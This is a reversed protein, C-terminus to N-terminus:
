IFKLLTKELIDIVKYLEEDNIIFPLFLTIGTVYKPSYCYGAILGKKALREVLDLLKSLSLLEHTARNEMLDIAIMLGRGRIDFVLPHDGLKSRLENILLEGKVRTSELLNDRKIQNITALASACSAPNGNQTSLHFLLENKETFANLIKKNFAVAGLPLYGSNIGKSMCVMDPKIGYHEYAFMRGTRGFGTAVEDCILLVDNEKCLKELLSVYGAPLPIIGASGLIPEIIFGALEDKLLEFKGVLESEFRDNCEKSLNASKCCRCFPIPFASFGDLLPGYGDKFESEYQSASMSGYYSGHYSAELVGIKRKQKNGKLQHYKRALKIALENSESGTCTFYIKEMDDHLLDIIEEGLQKVTSNTNDCLNVYNVNQLQETISQIIDKNAYGLSVNWLGCEADIYKKGFEDFVYIGEGHEVKRLEAGSDMKRLPHCVNYGM